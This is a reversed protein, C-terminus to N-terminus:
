GVATPYARGSPQCAPNGSTCCPSRCLVQRAPRVQTPSYLWVGRHSRVGNVSSINVVSGAGRRIMNKVCAQTLLIAGRLNVDLVRDIDEGRM